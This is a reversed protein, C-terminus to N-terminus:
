RRFTSLPPRQAPAGGRTPITTPTVAGGGPEQEPRAARGKLVRYETEMFKLLAKAEDLADEHKGQEETTFQPLSLGSEPDFYGDETKRAKGVEEMKKVLARQTDVSERAVQEAALRGKTATIDRVRNRFKAEEQQRAERAEALGFKAWDLVLRQARLDASEGLREEKGTRYEMMREQYETMPTAAQPLGAVAPYAQAEKATIPVDTPIQQLVEEQTPTRGTPIRTEGVQPSEYAMGPGTVEGEPTMPTFGEAGEFVPVAETEALGRAQQVAASQTERKKDAVAAQVQPDDLIGLKLANKKATMYDWGKTDLNRMFSYVREEKRRDELQEVFRAGSFTVTGGSPINFRNM